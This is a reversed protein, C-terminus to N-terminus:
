HLQCFQACSAPSRGPKIVLKVEKNPPDYEPVCAKIERNIAQLKQQAAKMWANKAAMIETEKPAGLAELKIVEAPMLRYPCRAWVLLDHKFQKNAEFSQFIANTKPELLKVNQARECIGPLCSVSSGGHNAADYADGSEYLSNILYTQWRQKSTKFGDNWPLDERELWPIISAMLKSFVPGYVNDALVTQLALRAKARYGAELQQDIKAELFASVEDEPMPQPAAQKILAMVQAYAERPMYSHIEYGDVNHQQVQLERRIVLAITGGRQTRCLASNAYEEIALAAQCQYHNNAAAARYINHLEGADLHKAADLKLIYQFLRLKDPDGTQIQRWADAVIANIQEPTIYTEYAPNCLIGGKKIQVGDTSTTAIMQNLGHPNAWQLQPHLNYDALKAVFQELLAPNNLHNIAADSAMFTALFKLQDDKFAQSAQEVMGRLQKQTVYRNLDQNFLLHQLKFPHTAFLEEVAKPNLKRTIDDRALMANLLELADPQAIAQSAIAFLAQLSAPALLSGPLQKTRKLNPVFRSGRM